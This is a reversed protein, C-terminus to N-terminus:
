GEVLARLSRAWADLNTVTLEVTKPPADQAELADRLRRRAESLRWKVTGTPTDTVEAIEATTLEEWYHLEIVIQLDPPLTRLAVLLIRQEERAHVPSSPSTVLSELERAELNEKATTGRAIDRRSRLVEYRAVGLLFARFSTAERLADLRKQAALFTQQTLDEARDPARRRCFGFVRDFHRRVLERGAVDDGDRWSELLAADTRDNSV